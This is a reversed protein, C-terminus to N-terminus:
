SRSPTRRVVARALGAAGGPPLARRRGGRAAARRVGRRPRARWRRRRRACRRASGRRTPWCSRPTAPARTAARGHARRDDARARGAGRRAAARDRRPPLVHARRHPLGPRAPEVLAVLADDDCDYRLARVRMTNGSTEGKRWLEDRSRSWFHMEGTERTRALAEENMYALTLVEGTARGADRVAGPRGRRIRDDVAVITELGRTVRDRAPRAPRRRRALGQAGARQLECTCGAASSAGRDGQARRHRDGQGDAGGAGILIAKQSESEAWM